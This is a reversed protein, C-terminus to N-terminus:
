PGLSGDWPPSGPTPRYWRSRTVLDGPPCASYAPIGALRLSRLAGLGTLDSGLIIAPPRARDFASAHSM